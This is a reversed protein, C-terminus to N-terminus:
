AEEGVIRVHRDGTGISGCEWGCAEGKADVSTIRRYSIWPRGGGKPHCDATVGRTTIEALVVPRGWADPHPGETMHVRYNFQVVTGPQISDVEAATLGTNTNSAM